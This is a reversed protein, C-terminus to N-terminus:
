QNMLDQELNISVLGHTVRGSLMGGLHEVEGQGQVTKRGMALDSDIVSLTTEKLYIM